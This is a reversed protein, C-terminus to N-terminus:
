RGHNNIRHLVFTPIKTQKNLETKRKPIPTEQLWPLGRVRETALSSRSSRVGGGWRWESTHPNCAWAVLCNKL